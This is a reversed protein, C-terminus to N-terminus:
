DGKKPQKNEDDAKSVSVKHNEEKSETDDPNNSAM